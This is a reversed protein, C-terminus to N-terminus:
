KANKEPLPGNLAAREELKTWVATRHTRFAVLAVLYLLLCLGIWVPNQSVFAAFILGTLPHAMLNFSTILVVGTPLSTGTAVLAATYTPALWSAVYLGLTGWILGTLVVKVLNGRTLAVISELMFPLAILDVMPLTRNGPLLFSVGILLPLLIMGSILTASDGYGVGDDIALFWQRGRQDSGQRQNIAEALPTFASAFVQTVLPFLTMIAALQITFQGIQSWAALRNLRDLNALIGLLLGLIAGISTPEGLIGFREKFRAPTLRLKNLGLRNWLPDLLLIPVAYELNHLAAVTAAPVRYWAAWAPAQVEALLLTVLLLFTALGLSLLWNHTAALALTAWIMFGFNNWLNAPMFVRTVRCAFLLIELGLAVLFFTIGIPASFSALSGVQWGLDVVPLHIGTTNVLRRILKTVLPTFAAILWSFGTLGVGSALASKAARARSVRLVRGICYIILPVVVSPGFLTVLHNTATLM